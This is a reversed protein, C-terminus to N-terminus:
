WRNGSGLTDNVERGNLSKKSSYSTTSAVNSDVEEVTYMTIIMKMANEQFEAGINYAIHFPLFIQDGGSIVQDTPSPDQHGSQRIPSHAWHFDESIFDYM